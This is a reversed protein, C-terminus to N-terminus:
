GGAARAGGEGRQLASRPEKAARGSGEVTPRLTDTLCPFFDRSLGRRAPLPQPPTFSPINAIHAVLFYGYEHKVSTGGADSHHGGSKDSLPHRYIEQLFLAAA